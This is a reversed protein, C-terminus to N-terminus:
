GEDAEVQAVAAAMSDEDTVDLQLVRCGAAELGRLTEPRRATAYVVFDPALDAATAAGIGTSCGTILVARSPLVTPPVTPPM